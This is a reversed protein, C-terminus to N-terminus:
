TTYSRVARSARRIGLAATIAQREGIPVEALFRTEGAQRVAIPLGDRWALRTGAGAAFREGPTIIGALSLPDVSSLVIVEGDGGDRQKRLLGIAEPLAYQEGAFGGVFRGGRIEGRAELRRLVSLVSRWPPLGSERELVRRFVVGYRALLTWAIRVTAAEDPAVPAPLAWWRGASEVSYPAVTYRRTRGALSPRKGSPVLLARLGRFSDSTVLGNAVLEGLANEVQTKLLGNAAVVDAFFSAGRANLTALVAAAPASLTGPEAPGSQWAALDARPLFAIPTGRVPGARPREPAPRRVRAWVLDGTMALVDLLAPDYEAVRRPLIETEWAGAAAEFGELQRLAATLGDAGERQSAPHVHQWHMLFRM